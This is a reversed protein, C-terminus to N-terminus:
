YTTSSLGNSVKFLVVQHVIKIYPRVTKNPLRSSPSEIKDNRARKCEPFEVICNTPRSIQFAMFGSRGSEESRESHCVPFLDM